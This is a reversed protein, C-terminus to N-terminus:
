SVNVVHVEEKKKNKIFETEKTKSKISHFNLKSRKRDTVIFHHKLISTTNVM